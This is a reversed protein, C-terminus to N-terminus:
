PSTTQRQQLALRLAQIAPAGTPALLLEGRLDAKECTWVFQGALAGTATIPADTRCAGAEGRLRGFERAWNAASRDMLFNMALRDRGPDVRGARYMAGAAAYAQAL